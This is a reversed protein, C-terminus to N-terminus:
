LFSRQSWAPNSVQTTSGYESGCPDANFQDALVPDPDLFSFPVELLSTLPCLVDRKSSSSTKKQPSAAEGTAQIDKM